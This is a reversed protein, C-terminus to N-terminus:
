FRRRVCAEYMQETHETMRDVSFLAARRPGATALRSRTDDNLLSIYATVFGDVDGVPVLLGNQNNQIMEPVGGAAFAVPPVGLALSDILATGLGEDRAPHWLVDLGAMANYIDTVFGAHAVEVDGWREKGAARGGLFVIRTRQAANAPLSWAIRQVVDVGKEATMAGVVGVVLAQAPWGMEQRWDRVQTVAPTPVGSYIVEIREPSIGARTMANKVANSIAVFRTVRPGYKLRVSKPPFTVRRTVIFPTANGALALLAIAHARADHAHVIDPRWARILARIRKASRLDWDGRMPVAATALGAAHAREVLPMGGVGVVLPEHGRARLAHALLLVQRQGGRWSRGADLHLSRLQVM